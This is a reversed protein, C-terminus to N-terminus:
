SLTATNKELYTITVYVKHTAHQVLHKSAGIEYALDCKLLCATKGLCSKGINSIIQQPICFIGLVHLCSLQVLISRCRWRIIRIVDPNLEGITRYSPHSFLLLYVFFRQRLASFHKSVAGKSRVPSCVRWLRELEVALHVFWLLVAM